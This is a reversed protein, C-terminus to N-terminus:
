RRIGEVVEFLHCFREEGLVWSAPFGLPVIVMKEGNLHSLTVAELGVNSVEMALLDLDGIATLVDICEREDVISMNKVGHEFVEELVIDSPHTINQRYSLGVDLQLFHHLSEDIV